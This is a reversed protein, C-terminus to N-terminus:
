FFIKKMNTKNQQKRSTMGDKEREREKNVKNERELREIGDEKM